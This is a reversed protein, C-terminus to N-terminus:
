SSADGVVSSDGDDGEGCCRFDVELVVEEEEDDEDPSKDVRVTGTSLSISFSRPSLTEPM